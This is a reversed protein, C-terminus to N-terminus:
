FEFFNGNQPQDFPSKAKKANKTNTIDGNEPELKTEPFLIGFHSFFVESRFNSARWM